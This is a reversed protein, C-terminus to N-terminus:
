DNTKDVKAKLKVIDENSKIDTEILLRNTPANIIKGDYVFLSFGSKEDQYVENVDDIIYEKDTGIVNIRTM